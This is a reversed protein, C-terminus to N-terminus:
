VLVVFLMVRLVTALWSVSNWLAKDALSGRSM